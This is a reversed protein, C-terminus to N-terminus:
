AVLNQILRLSKKIIQKATFGLRHPLTYLHPYDDKRNQLYNPDVVFTRLREIHERVYRPSNHEDIAVKDMWLEPHLDLKKKRFSSIPIHNCRISQEIERDTTGGHPYSRFKRIIHEKPYCYSYEFLIKREWVASYGIHESRLFGVASDGEAARIQAVTVIPTSRMAYWHNDFDYWFRHRPIFVMGDKSAKLKQCLLEYNAPTTDFDLMEDADSIMVWDNDNYKQIIYDRALSRQLREARMGQADIDSRTYDIKPFKLKGSIIHLRDRFPAFREDGNIVEEAFVGKYEGQITYENEVLIWETIKPSELILKVLLVEKEYPESFLFTDIIRM